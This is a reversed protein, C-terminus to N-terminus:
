FLLVRLGILCLSPHKKKAAATTLVYGGQNTFTKKTM